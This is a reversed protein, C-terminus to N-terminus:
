PAAKGRLSVLCFDCDTVSCNPAPTRPNHEQDLKSVWLATHVVVDIRAKQLGLILVSKSNRRIKRSM